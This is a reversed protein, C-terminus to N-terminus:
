QAVEAARLATSARLWVAPPVGAEEGRLAVLRARLAEAAAPEPGAAATGSEGEDALSGADRLAEAEAVLGWLQSCYHLAAEADALQWPLAEEAQEEAAAAPEGGGELERRLRALEGAQAVLQGM